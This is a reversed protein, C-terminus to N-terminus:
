EHHRIHVAEGRKLATMALGNMRASGVARVEGGHHVFVEDGSRIEPSADLVGVAFVNTKPRFDDIEVGFRGSRALAKGGELTLSLSGKDPVLSCLQVGDKIIRVMPFGGRAEAGDLLHKWADGFQYSALARMDEFTRQNWGPKSVGGAFSRLAETLKVLNEKRTVSDGGTHIAGAKELLEGLFAMEDDLHAVIHAYKKKSLHNQLMHRAIKKEDEDWHGTVPIDYQQAPYVTEIERPVIGLPSTVIVEHVSAAIGSNRVAERFMRHTKSLSYPKKASCPLLVLVEPSSPPLYRGDVRERYRLIDPRWLSEKASALFPGGFTPTWKEFAEYEGLDAFRLAEVMWAAHRARLEVLHRLTGERIADRVIALETELQRLNHKMIAQRDPEKGIGVIKELEESGSRVIRGNLMVQGLSSRTVTGFSDVLDVGFYCLLALNLPDALGPAYILKQPGVEERLNAFFHAFRRPERSLLLADGVPVIDGLDSSDITSFITGFSGHHNDPGGEAGRFRPDICPYDESGKEFFGSPLVTIVNKMDGCSLPNDTVIARAYSPAEVSGSSIYLIEPSNLELRESRYEALRALWNEKVIEIM